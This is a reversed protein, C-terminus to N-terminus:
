EDVCVFSEKTAGCDPCVWNDPVEAWPTGPPVGRLPDGEVERYLHGCVSCEYTKM